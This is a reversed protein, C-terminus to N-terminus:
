SVIDGAEKQFQAFQQQIGELAGELLNFNGSHNPGMAKVAVGMMRELYGPWARAYFGKIVVEHLNQIGGLARVYEVNDGM